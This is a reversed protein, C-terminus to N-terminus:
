KVPIRGAGGRERNKALRTEKRDVQVSRPAEIALFVRNRSVRAVRVIIGKGIVIAEGVKRTLVLM